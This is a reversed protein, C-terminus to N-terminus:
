EGAGTLLSSPLVQQCWMKWYLDKKELLQEHTGKEAIRGQELFVIRDAYTITSLRHAIVLTTRGKMLNRYANEVIHRETESDVSSTAEDLILLAPDRLIARAISLRQRQGCSLRIGREGILTDYGEPLRTIFDHANALCAVREVEKAKAGPSAYLINEKVTANFLYDDQLVMAIQSRYAKLDLQRLDRGDVYVAGKEPDYFRLVLNIVTTKGAGSKGALAVVQHPQIELSFDSLANQKQDYTFSVNDFSLAGKMKKLIVSGPRPLVAPLEEFIRDLRDLAASAQQYDNNIIVMKIVPVFLIGLYAYFAMLEGATIRGKHVALAGSWLVVVLALASILESGMWLFIARRHGALSARVIDSQSHQFRGAEHEERAFAAVVRMGNLTENLRGTLEGYKERVRGHIKRLGPTVAFFMAGFVPLCLMAILTLQWDIIFLITLVFFLNFFSYVFDLVGGFLFNRISDVDSIVRSIVEGSPLSDVFQVSLRQIQRYLRTRLDCVMEEGLSVASYERIYSFVFRVVLIGTLSLVIINLLGTNKRIVVEDIILKIGWPFALGSLNAAIIATLTIAARRKYPQLLRIFRRANKM